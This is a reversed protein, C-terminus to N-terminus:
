NGPENQTEPFFMEKWGAPETNVMGTRHMFRAILLSGQPVINYGTGPKGILDVIAEPTSREGSVALYGEAARRPDSNIIDIAERMAEEVAAIVKPNADHFRETAYLVGNSVPSGVIEQATTVVHVRPDKLEQFVYPPVSFHSNIETNGLLGAMADPHSRSVTIYDLKRTEQPGFAKEAAIELFIAQISSRVAPVAIRDKDTFDRVSKVAPNRTVLMIPSYGYSLLGRVNVKGRGKAWLTVFSPFGTAALDLNGSILGDNMVEGGASRIFTVALRPLGAASARKQILSEHDIVAFPLYTLGYQIGIRVRDTEAHGLSIMGVVLGAVSALTVAFAATKRVRAGQKAAKAAVGIIGVLFERLLVIRELEVTM